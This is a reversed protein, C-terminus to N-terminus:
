LLTNNKVLYRRVANKITDKIYSSQITNDPDADFIPDTLADVHRELTQM